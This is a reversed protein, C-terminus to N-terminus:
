QKGYHRNIAAELDKPAAEVPAINRNLIFNLKLALDPDIPSPM